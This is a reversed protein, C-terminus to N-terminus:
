RLLNNDNRKANIKAQKEKNYKTEIFILDSINTWFQKNTTRTKLLAKDGKIEALIFRMAKNSQWKTHYNCGITLNNQM